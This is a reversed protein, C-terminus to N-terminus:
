MQAIQIQVVILTSDRNCADVVNQRDYLDVCMASQRLWFELFM